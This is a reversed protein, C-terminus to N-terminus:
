APLASAGLWPRLRRWRPRGAALLLTPPLPPSPGSLEHTATAHDPALASGVFANLTPGTLDRAASLARVTEVQPRRREGRELSSVAHGSLAITALEDQTIESRWGEDSNM